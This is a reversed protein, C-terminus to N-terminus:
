GGVGPIQSSLVSQEHPIVDDVSFEGSDVVLDGGAADIYEVTGTRVKVLELLTADVGTIRGGSLVLGKSFRKTM